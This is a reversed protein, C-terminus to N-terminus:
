GFWWTASRRLSARAGLLPSPEASLDLAAGGPTSTPPPAGSVAPALLVLGAVRDPASIAADLAVGGGVSSGVLWAPADTVEDLVALLDDVHSFEEASPPTEGFGRRDYAVLAARGHLAEAVAHWSRRDTVGAHLLGVVPGPGPWREGALRASGCNVVLAESVPM